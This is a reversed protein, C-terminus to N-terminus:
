ANRSLLSVTEVHGTYAFMDVPQAYDLRYGGMALTKLDRALTGPDCSIYAIRHPAAKILAALVRSDAGADRRIWCPPPSPKETQLWAPFRRRRTALSSAPPAM